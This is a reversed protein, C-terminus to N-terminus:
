LLSELLEITEALLPYLLAQGEISTIWDDENPQGINACGVM